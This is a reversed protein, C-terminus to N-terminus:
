VNRLAEFKANSLAQAQQANGAKLQEVTQTGADQAVAVQDGTNREINAIKANLTKIQEILEAVGEGKGYQTLAAASWAPANLQAQNSEIVSGITQRIYGEDAVFGAGSANYSKSADLFTKAAGTLKDKESLDGSSVEKYIREYEARSAALRMEPSNAGLETVNMQTIFDMLSGTFKGLADTASHQAATLKNQADALEKTYDPMTGGGSTNRSAIESYTGYGGDGAPRMAANTVDAMAQLGDIMHAFGADAKYMAADAAGLVTRGDFGVSQGVNAVSASASSSSTVLGALASSVGLLAVTTQQGKATTDAMAGDVMARFTERVADAGASLDPMTLGLGEFVKSVKATSNAAKEADTYWSDYYSSLGAGLKDMGGAAAILGAAADFSMDKLSEFPLGDVADRFSNIGAVTAEITGVLAKAADASLSEADVGQVMDAITKPIDAAAQLAQITVQMLDTTFNTLADKADVSQASTHEYLTGEYNNGLGNEGFTQGTSLTGGSFVGGRGRDSSELGAQFGALTASSGMAKLLGNIGGVTGTISQRVVDGEIEGGSPGQLLAAVGKNSDYSYQGGSRTEGKAQSAIAIAALAIWGWVPVAALAGTISGGAAASGAAAGAGEAAVAGTSVGAWGGNAGILAGLSDGGVAGVANAYGLSLSSAGASAGGLWQAGAGYLTNLGMANNVTGGLGMSNAGQPGSGYLFSNIGQAVPNVVASIVPRLVLSKFMNVITDRMNKAFDKGSEFGRMLADTLTSNISEASRRWEEEIKKATDIGQEKIAGQVKLSALERLAAAKAKIADFEAQDLNRDMNKIAVGDLIAAQENLRAAEMEAIAVVGLGLQANHDSQVQVEEKLKDVGERLSEMYKVRAAAAALDAKSAREQLEVKAALVNFEQGSTQLRARETDSLKGKAADMDSAVKIGFKEADTLQRGVELEQKALAIREQISKNLTDYVSAQAPGPNNLGRAAKRVEESDKVPAVKTPVKAVEELEKRYAQTQAILGKLGTIEAQIGVVRADTSKAGSARLQALQNEKEMLADVEGVFAKDAKFQKDGHFLVDLGALVGALKGHEIAAEAAAKGSNGLAKVLDSGLTVFLGQGSLQLKHLNDNFDEASKAFDTGLVIGLKKAEDGLDKIAGKGGNLLPILDSGNKGLLAVAVATKNAGDASGSFVEALDAFVKDASRLNGAADKVSIGLNKFLAAQEKSGNGAASININLKKLGVSLAETSVDALGAAYNLKSLDEVAVGTKQSLKNFSDALNIADQIKSAFSIASIGAVATTGLAAFSGGVSSVASGLKGAEGAVRKFADSAGDDKGVIRVTTNQDAM